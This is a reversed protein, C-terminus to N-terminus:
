DMISRIREEKKRFCVGLGCIVSLVGLGIWIWPNTDDGTQPLKPEIPVNSIELIQEIVKTKGDKYEFVVERVTEDLIYGQPAGVEVVYYTIAEVYKGNKFTAINLEKSEAKGNKDTILIEIVKGEKDRIEFKAGALAKGSVSDKKQIVIGGVAMEDKMMVKQVKDTETVEFEVDTAIAYGFPATEERLIYKGIPLREIRHPEGNSTWKEVLNGKSDIVSLVAGELENEGTIDTKSIEVKIPKNKFEVEVEIVGVNEGKYSADVDFVKKSKVYGKPAELEKVYYKGLPLDSVFTVNGKKGTVAKEIQTDAKVIVKGEKNVIDEKAFLGFVAGELVKGMEADKKTVGIQVKQRENSVNMGAYVVKTHQDVYSLDAEIPTADLVFGDITATEVVYYKGLPLDYISAIGDKNTVITAVLTDKEYYVHGLRDASVIDEAAYVEFTVGADKKVIRLKATFERDLFVRWTQPKTPNNETIKVEFPKITKMNHPTVTELIVYTGYPIPISVAYGKEDSFITTKGDEGIIIPTAKSYDYSGDEKVPLASKLYATFGAGKM